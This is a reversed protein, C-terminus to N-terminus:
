RQCGVTEGAEVIPQAGGTCHISSRLEVGDAWVPPEHGLRISEDCRYIPRCAYSGDRHVGNVYWGRPCSARDGSVAMAWLLLVVSAMASLAEWLM